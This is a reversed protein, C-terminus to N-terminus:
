AGTCIVQVTKAGGGSSHTATCGTGIAGASACALTGGVTVTTDYTALGAASACGGATNVATAAGSSIQYKAYNIATASSIAGAVGQAAAGGADSSLDVFKPLATAALIGLIVIVVVLEILTFGKQQGM